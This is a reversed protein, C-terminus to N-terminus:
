GFISSLGLIGLLCELISLIAKLKTYQSICKAVDTLKNINLIPTPKISTILFPVNELIWLEYKSAFVEQFDFAESYENQEESLVIIDDGHQTQYTKSLESASLLALAKDLIGYLWSM